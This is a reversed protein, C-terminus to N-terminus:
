YLCKELRGSPCALIGFYETISGVVIVSLIIKNMKEYKKLFRSNRLTECKNFTFHLTHFQILSM